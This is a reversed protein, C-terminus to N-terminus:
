RASIARSWCRAWGSPGCRRRPSSNPACGPSRTSTSSARRRCSTPGPARARWAGCGPSRRSPRSRPCGHSRRGALYGVVTYLLLSLAGALLGLVQPHGAEVHLLTKVVVVAAVAAYATLAVVGLLLLDLLPGLAPSRASLGRLYGLRHERLAVWAALAASAPGLVRVSAFLAAVADDWYAVGPLLARWAAVAGLLALAPVALFPATRRADIRLVRGLDSM